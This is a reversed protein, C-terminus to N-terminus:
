RTQTACQWSLQVALFQRSVNPHKLVLCLYCRRFKLGSIIKKLHINM